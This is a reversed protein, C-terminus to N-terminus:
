LTLCCQAHMDSKSSNIWLYCDPKLTRIWGKHLPLFVTVTSGQIIAWLLMKNIKILELFPCNLTNFPSFEDFFINETKLTILKNLQVLLLFIKRPVAIIWPLLALTIICLGWCNNVFFLINRGRLYKYGMGIKLCSLSM